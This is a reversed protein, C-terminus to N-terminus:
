GISQRGNLSGPNRGLATAHPGLFDREVSPAAGRAAVSGGRRWAHSLVKTTEIHSALHGKPQPDNMCHLSESGGRPRHSLGVPFDLSHQRIVTLVPLTRLLRKNEPKSRASWASMARVYFRNNATESQRKAIVLQSQTLVPAGSSNRVGSGWIRLRITADLRGVLGASVAMVLCCPDPGRGASTYGPPPGHSSSLLM